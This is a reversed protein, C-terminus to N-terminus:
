FWYAMEKQGMEPELDCFEYLKGKIVLEAIKLWQRHNHSFCIAESFKRVSISLSQHCNCRLWLVVGQTQLFIVVKFFFFTDL